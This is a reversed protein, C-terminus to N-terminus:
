DEVHISDESLDLSRKALCHAVTNAQRPVHNVSWSIYTGLLKKIDQYILGVMSWDEAEGTIGHVVQKSYGEFIVYKLSLEIGFQVARLAALAEGWLPDHFSNCPSRLTATVLGLWDRISVGIGVKCNANDIAADWNLKYFNNPPKCWRVTRQIQPSTRQQNRELEELDIISTSVLKLVQQPSAFKSEFIFKNRRFWIEKATIALKTHEEPPLTSLLNSLLDYFPAEETKSKQIRRSSINWVNQVVKCMWLAHSVTEPHLLCIPCLPSDIIKRKHLNVRTSLIEKVSRWLFM